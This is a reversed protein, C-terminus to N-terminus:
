SIAVIRTHSLWDRLSAYDTHLNSAYDGNSPLSCLTRTMDISARGGHMHTILIMTHYGDADSVMVDYMIDYRSEDVKCNSRLSVIM